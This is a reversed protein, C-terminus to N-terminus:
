LMESVLVKTFYNNFHSAGYIPMGVAILSLSYEKNSDSRAYGMFAYFETYIPLKYSIMTKYWKATM